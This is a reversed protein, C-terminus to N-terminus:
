QSLYTEYRLPFAGPYSTKTGYGHKMVIENLLAYGGHCYLTITPNCPIWVYAMLRDYPDNQVSDYELIVDKGVAHLIIYDKAPYFGESGPTPATVGILGVAVGGGILLTDGSLAAKVSVNRPFVRYIKLSNPFIGFITPAILLVLFLAAGAVLFTHKLRDKHTHTHM